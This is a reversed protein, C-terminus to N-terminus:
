AQSSTIKCHLNKLRQKILIGGKKWEMLSLLAIGIDLKAAINKTSYIKGSSDQDCTPTTYEDM